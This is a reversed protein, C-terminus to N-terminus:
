AYSPRQVAEPVVREIKFRSISFFKSSQYKRITAKLGSREAGELISFLSKACSRARPESVGVRAELRSDWTCQKLLKRCLYVAGAALENPNHLLHGTDLLAIELFYQCFAFTRPSLGETVGYIELFFFPTPTVLSFGLTTLISGEMELLEASTYVNCCVALYDKLSPPYIEEYKGIIMLAAIGVLQLRKHSVKTLALYRDILNVAMFITQSAMKFKCNVDVLWDVLISRMKADIDPQTNMYDAPPRAGHQACATTHSIISRLTSADIGILEKNTSFGKDCGGSNSQRPPLANSATNALISLNEKDSVDSTAM